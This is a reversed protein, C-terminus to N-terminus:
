RTRGGGHRFYDYSLPDVVPEDADVEEDQQPVGGYGGRAQGRSGPPTSAVYPMGAASSMLHTQSEDALNYVGGRGHGHGSGSPDGLDGYGTSTFQPLGLDENRYAPHHYDAPYTTGVGGNMGFGTPSSARSSDPSGRTPPRGEYGLFSKPTDSRESILDIPNGYIEGGGHEDGFDDRNKYYSFDLRNEDVFEFPAPGAGQALKGTKTSSLPDLVIDNYGALSASDMDAELRGRYIQPLVHRAKANVMPTILPKFLVPNGFRYSLKDNRRHPKAGPPVALSSELDKKTYYHIQDDFARSCYWKFGLLLFPLPIMACIMTWDGRAKVVLAIAFNSLLTAFLFRNYIIRWFQGGSETKTIFVYLLLYKKLWSDLGFYLATVPLVIPQMTAFCLAVTAYFLFYNYYSAYDFMPPATWEIEQRPTPNMFTKTFWIWSLNLLQALDVTAGLNRQLIWTVWYTSINCLATMLKSFLQGEKIAEWVGENHQKAGIVTAVFQWVASFASFVILNNFVFFAYLRHTVHRERSTKTKDGARISLRRFAIPLLLYVLSTVAPAAIGQVIAWGKPSRHLETNFAPWLTGLNSLDSLFVAILANPAIWILTLVAVWLVNTLRRWRRSAKSLALNRWILDNPRPALKITTGHKHKNRAAYAIRHAEPITDYSAFGYPLPDRKDITLRVEKIKAELDGIRETLYEIADVRQGTRFSKDKKSPRCTPRARPLNDPNKLYKALYSELKRVTEDHEEILSPLIKVNRAIACRPVERATKIEETLLHIGQDTRFNSPIDTLMLTRAHLAKQYDPSEFYQRRLRVIARYNTWLFVAIVIDFAWACVVQAWIAKGSVFMPTMLLFSSSSKAQSKNRFGVNVPIMVLCGIVSMIVFLNRCMRTFRLFVIADLGIKEVMDVERIQIIPKIWAFLGRGVPPLARKGEAIKLKPAYVLSHHPRILSFFITGLVTVGISSGISAWFANAQFSSEFPDSILGLFKDAGSESQQQRPLMSSTQTSSLGWDAM